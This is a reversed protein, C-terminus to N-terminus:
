KWIRPLAVPGIEFGKQTFDLSACQASEYTYIANECMLFVYLYYRGKRLGIKDFTLNIKGEGNVDLEIAVGDYFTSCSTINRKADDTIIVAVSPTPLSIDSVFTVDIGLTSVESILKLNGEQGDDCFVRVKKIRAHTNLVSKEEADATEGASADTEDFDLYKQYMNVVGSPEGLTKIEGKDVWMVKQCLVEVQYLSHSCFLITCGRDKLQMIKDFSKRAFTGDGVSLAEDIILIDPEVSTAVAFALRAFMGSSYMKVSQHIFEGIDAFAIIGDVREAMETRSFGMLTGQLYINETGTYEPNFGAGLELLSAIKGEVNVTGSTPTLVGSLIKLLTSKGAGNNGIIGFVEGTKVEFSVNNLAYFDHYYVKKFPNLAEKLRDIPENYLRYSKSLGEVRIAVKSM